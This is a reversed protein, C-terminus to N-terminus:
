ELIAANVGKMLHARLPYANSALLQTMFVVAIDEEPDVWFFTSAAGGWGFTGASVPLGTFAPQTIVSGSLGFGVGLGGNAYADGTAFVLPRDGFDVQPLHNSMMLEVTRPGLVRRGDLAGGGLLMLAFRMYDRATGVLGGGGGPMAPPERYSSTYPADVLELAPEPDSAAGESPPRESPPRYLAAFRDIKEDPVYFATDKMGLPAFLQDELFEPFGQGSSVEILRGLVDMNIGYHWASGPQIALPLEGLREVMDELTAQTDKGSPGLATPVPLPRLGPTLSAEVYRPGLPPRAIFSYSIGSTHRLLDLVTIERKAPVIRTDGNEDWEMVGLDALAPLHKGIPDNLLFRGREWAIMTAAGTIVKSMSYIRHITDPRLERDSELDMKGYVSEHVIRGHRAVLLQYGPLQGRDVYGELMRDLRGLAEGSLGVSEPSRDAAIPDEEASSGTIACGALVLGSLALATAVGGV